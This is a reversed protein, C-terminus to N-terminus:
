IIKITSLRDRNIVNHLVTVHLFEYMAEQVNHDSLYNQNQILNFNMLIWVQSYSLAVGNRHGYNRKRM